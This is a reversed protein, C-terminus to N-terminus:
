NGHRQNGSGFRARLIARRSSIRAEDEAICLMAPQCHLYAPDFEGTRRLQEIDLITVERGDNAILGDNRLHQITRNIHVPTLGLIDALEQQTFPLDFVCSGGAERCDSRVAVECILHALRGVANQSGLRLVWHNLAANEVAMSWAFARAIGPYRRPLALARERPMSQIMGAQAMGVSYDTQAFYLADLNCVDGATFIATIQRNGDRSCKYRCAWGERVIVLRGADEGARVFDSRASIPQPETLEGDFAAREESSLFESFALRTAPPPPPPTFEVPRAGRISRPFPTLDDM